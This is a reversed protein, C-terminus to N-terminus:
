LLKAAYGSEFKEFGIRLLLPQIVDPIFNNTLLIWEKGCEKLKSLFMSLLESGIGLGRFYEPVFLSTLVMVKEQNKSVPLATICGAFDDSFSRCVYGVQNSDDCNLFQNKWIEYFATKIEAPINEDNETFFAHVNQVIEDKNKESNYELFIFDDHLLMEDSEPLYDLKELGWIERLSNYWDNIYSHMTRNKYIHWKKEVEPYKKIVNRFNKFVGRGSHLVEQLEEHAIPSFLNKVFSERLAFGNASTWEPLNYYKEDDVKISETKEIINVTEADIVFSKEQNELASQISDFLSETLAFTM